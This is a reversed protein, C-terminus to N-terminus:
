SEEDPNNLEEGMRYKIDYNIIFDLEEDTFGYHKALAKDIEDIIPKSLKKKYAFSINSNGDQKIISSVMKHQNMDDELDAALKFLKCNSDYSLPFELINDQGLNFMDFNVSYYWWFLNSNLAAMYYAAHENTRMPIRKNSLSSTNFGNCLFIIWYRLGASRYHIHHQSQLLSNGGIQKDNRMKRYLVPEINSKFRWLREDLVSGSYTLIPFLIDRHESYWRIIGTTNICPSNSISSIFINLRQDAGKGGDFLKAPRIEYSSMHLCKNACLMQRIPQMNKSAGLSLPVIMGIHKGMGLINLSREITFAYLNNCSLTSYGYLRYKDSISKGTRKDKKTYVVYPPNGIIVDFGGNGHIIDYFEAIWHFPQHSTLWQTYDTGPATTQHLQRNLTDNLTRLRNNLTHKAQKYAEANEDQTLQLTKFSNYTKAIIDLEDEMKQRFEQATFLDAYTASNLADQKDAYGVLTNGCRINFDIDPLPDLGLNPEDPAVDVVAVMKLFLRLKAIETAEAMIDVGYLNRLIISKYIFYQVNSRYKADIESLEEKFLNPNEAHFHRMREICGEYLPELINLAVFLFAGSGCTPDLITVRRLANYFHKVFLHDTANDILDQAFLRINLNLTILDNAEHIDGGNIKGLLIDCRQLREITERWIETPLAFPTDTRENWRKRRDLLDPEDTSIGQTIYDPIRQPWDPSYGRLVADYIYRTNSQRMTQWVYGDAKFHKASPSAKVQDLLFPLICNKAIYETIDEKTYYAGMAARDNIYQEFIYGLVDPNIDRGTATLRTDLHWQWQDFFHFLSEFAEDRIDIDPYKREIQHLDFMGGNLYPIRGYHKEFDNDHSPQNLGGHFLRLLFGRYFSQYFRDQGQESRVWLLKNGLYDTDQDLFGKKQIFYCFMLRNLMVSTYWQKQRNEKTKLHDDIGTIFDAFARHQQQFGRYFDKTIRESNVAFAQQVRQKVDVITATEGLAFYLSQMKQYLFDAQQLTAYEVIVTDRKETTVIPCLWLHHLPEDNLTFICIYNDAQRRLRSDITRCLSMAPLRDTACTLVQFGSMRAICTIQYTTDDITIDPLNTQGKPHNWGLYEIFLEKFDAVSILTNFTNRDM